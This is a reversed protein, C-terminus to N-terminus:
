KYGTFKVVKLDSKRIHYEGGGGVVNEFPSIRRPLFVVIYLDRTQSVGVDYNRPNGVFRSLAGAEKGTVQGSYEVALENEFREYAVGVASAISPESTKDVSWAPESRMLMISLLALMAALTRCDSTM